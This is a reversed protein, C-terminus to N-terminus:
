VRGLERITTVATGLVHLSLTHALQESDRHLQKEWADAQDQRCPLSPPEPIGTPL